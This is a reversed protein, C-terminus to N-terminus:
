IVFLTNLIKMYGCGLFEADAYCNVVMKKSPNLVLSKDKTAKLYQRIRKVYKEHSSNTNHKFRYSQNSAFYIYPRINSALFFIM